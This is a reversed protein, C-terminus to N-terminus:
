ARQRHPVWEQGWKTEYKRRNEQFLRDYEASPLAAFSAQGWHHVFVDEACLIRGGVQKVRLSFDDDEFLGLGFREDLMGIEDLLSRRMAVCFMALMPIEFTKRELNRTYSEAFSEMGEISRYDVPVQAENGVWNSVPGVLAVEPDDLHRILRTLWGRTVVTDNNLLVIYSCDGAANIGINNAKAFGLNHGNEVLRLRPEVAAMGRLESVVDPRSGNDVVIVEFNPYATKEWISELCLRTYEVNDLSVVVIAARGFLARLRPQLTRFRAEWTNAKAFEKAAWEREPSWERLANEIQPVFDIPSAVRYFLNQLPELDPLAVSVVPKGASLYEYFKVPNTARTLPTLKFPICAVDFAHLYAPLLGYPMEGLLHVNSLGRLLGVEGGSTDGILVFQWDPRQQAACRILEADFWEAIAGYYGVIPHGLEALPNRAHVGSFHEYDTGNPLHLVNRARASAKQFLAQSSTLVLDSSKLLEDESGLMRPSNTSFGSHEDMCDYVLKWGWRQRAARALPAWFPLQVICLADDIGALDKLRALAALMGASAELSLSSKYVDLGAPGPLRLEHVNHAVERSELDALSGRFGTVMYYCNHNAAAFQTALHQPRQFRFDWDIVPFFLVAVKASRQVGDRRFLDTANKSSPGSLGARRALLVISRRSTYPIARRLLHRLASCALRIRDRTAWYASMARWHRSTHIAQLEAERKELREQREESRETAERIGADLSRERARGQELERRSSALEVALADTERQAILLAADSSDREEELRRNADISRRLIEGPRPATVQGIGEVFVGVGTAAGIEEMRRVLANARLDWTNEKAARRISNAMDNDASHELAIDVLRVFEARNKAAVVGPFGDCEPLDTVVVQKGCAMYEFLKVPSAAVTIKNVLFPILCVDFGWLLQLADEYGKMGLYYVNKKSLLGSRGLSGDFDVGAMVVDVDPRAEALEGLLAFDVWEALAGLYGV